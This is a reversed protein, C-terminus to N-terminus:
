CVSLLRHSAHSRGRGGIHPCPKIIEKPGRRRPGSPSQTPSGQRRSQRRGRRAGMCHLEARLLRRRLQRQAPLRALGRLLIAENSVNSKGNDKCSVYQIPAAMTIM